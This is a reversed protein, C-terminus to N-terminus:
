LKNIKERNNRVNKTANRTDYLLKAKEVIIEYDYCSHDTTILVIDTDEIVKEWDM